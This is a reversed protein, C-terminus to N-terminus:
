PACAHDTVGTYNPSFLDVIGKGGSASPVNMSREGYIRVVVPSDTPCTLRLHEARFFSQISRNSDPRPALDADLLPAFWPRERASSTRIPADALQNSLRPWLVLLSREFQRSACDIVASDRKPFPRLASRTEDFVCFITLAQGCLGARRKVSWSRPRRLDDFLHHARCPNFKRGWGHSLHTRPCM